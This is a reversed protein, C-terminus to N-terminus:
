AHGAPLDTQMEILHTVANRFMKELNPDGGIAQRDDVLNILCRVIDARSAGRAELVGLLARPLEIGVNAALEAAYLANEITQRLEAVESRLQEIETM